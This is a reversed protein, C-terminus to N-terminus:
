EQGKGDEAPGRGHEGGGGTLRVSRALGREFRDVPDALLEGLGVHSWRTEFLEQRHHLQATAGARGDGVKPGVARDDLARELLGLPVDNVAPVLSELETRFVNRAQGVHGRRSATASKSGRVGMRSLHAITTPTPVKLSERTRGSVSAVLSARSRVAAMVLGFM